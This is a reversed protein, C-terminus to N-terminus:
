ESKCLISGKNRVWAYPVQKKKYSYLVKMINQIVEKM